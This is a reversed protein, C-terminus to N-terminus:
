RRRVALDEADAAAEYASYDRNRVAHDKRDVPGSARSGVTTPPPPASSVTKAPTQTSAAPAGGLFRAELRGFGLMLDAPTETKCLRQWDQQGEPTSFHALLATSAESWVVHQALVNHPLVPAGPPLAFAPEVELLGPDLKDHFTPDAERASKLREHFSTIRDQMSQARKQSEADLRASREREEFKRDAIFASRADLYDEYSEFSEVQPADPHNRYRQWDQAPTRTAPESAPKDNSPAPANLKALEERMLRRTRLEQSLQENEAKLQAIRTDLNKKPADTPPPPASPSDASDSALDADPAQDVRDAAPAAPRSVRDLDRANQEREFAAFDPATPSDAPVAAGSDPQTDM